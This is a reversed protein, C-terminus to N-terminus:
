AAARADDIWQEVEARVYLVKRGLKFPKPGIGVHRWYRVTEPSRRLLDAFENTDIYKPEPM